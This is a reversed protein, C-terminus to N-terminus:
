HIGVHLHCLEGEAARESFGAVDFASGLEQILNQLLVGVVELGM